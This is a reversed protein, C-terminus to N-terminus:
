IFSLDVGGGRRGKVEDGGVLSVFQGIFSTWILLRFQRCIM